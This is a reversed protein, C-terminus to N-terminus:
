PVYLRLSLYDHVFGAEQLLHTLDSAIAQQGNIREITLTNRPRRNALPRLATFARRLADADSGVRSRLRRGGRDLYLLPEGDVLVVTAGTVRRPSVAETDNFDPWPLLWGYPNAPDTASLVVVEPENGQDRVKRLREVVGPYAFQAGGLGEVFYGRRVKGAEEMQRLVRYTASFGRIAEIAATERVVLGHRELLTAAWAHARETPSIDDFVLHSVLSWRGGGASSLARRASSRRQSHEPAGARPRGALSRLAAFTDNTILGAWVLDWLAEMVDSSRADKLAATLETLFSAGRTGLHKLIARHRDNWEISAEEQTVPVLLKGVRERRYLVIRGDDAGLPSHGVWVIYGQAGLEDLHQPRFNRVRAPLIFRELERHSLPIGELQAIADELRGQRANSGAGHWAPLFRGLVDRTLPAVQNRLKAITRRKISRLVEVDCWEESVAGPRFEGHQLRGEATLARLLLQANAETMGFREAVSSATFPGHTRAYRSLLAELANDVRSLFVAAIGPPLATGLADRYLAADEVAVWATEGRVRIRLARHSRELQDLLPEPPVDCRKRIEDTSLHGLQRLVDHL